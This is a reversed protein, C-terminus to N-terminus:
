SRVEKVKTYRSSHSHKNLILKDLLCKWCEGNRALECWPHKNVCVSRTTDGRYLERKIQWGIEERERYNM